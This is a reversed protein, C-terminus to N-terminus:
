VPRNLQLSPGTSKRIVIERTPHESGILRLHAGRYSDQTVVTMEASPIPTAAGFCVLSQIAIGCPSSPKPRRSLPTPVICKRSEIV